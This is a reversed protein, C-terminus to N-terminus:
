PILRNDGPHLREIAQVQDDRFEVRLYTYSRQYYRYGMRPTHYYPWAYYHYPFPAQTSYTRSYTWVESVGSETERAYSRDPAGLALYVMEKTFGVGIEGERVKGQVAPPFSEFLEPYRAIRRGPTSCGVCWLLVLLVPILQRKYKWM